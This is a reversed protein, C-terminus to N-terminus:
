VFLEPRLAHPPPHRVSEAAEPPIIGSLPSTSLDPCHAADREWSEGSQHRWRVNGM